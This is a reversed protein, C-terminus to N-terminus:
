RSWKAPDPDMLGVIGHLGLLETMEVSCDDVGPGASAATALYGCRPLEARSFLPDDWREGFGDVARPEAQKSLTATAGQPVGETTGYITGDPARVDLSELDVGLANTVTMTSGEPPSWELRARTTSAAIAVHGTRERVPLFDGSLILQNGDMEVTRMRAEDGIDPVFVTTGPLPRLTSGGKGLVLSRRLAATTQNEVQDVIALSHAFGETRFGQRVLGFVVILATTALSLVPVSLFLLGPRKKRRSYIVSGPGVLLAFLTLVALVPRIPLSDDPIPESWISSGMSLDARGVIGIMSPEDTAAPLISDLLKLAARLPREATPASSPDRLLSPEGATSDVRVLVGFGARYVTVDRGIERALALSLPELDLELRPTMIAEIGALSGLRRDLDEGFVVLQGGQRVWEFLRNWRHDAPLVQDVDLFVTDVSSWGATTLPMDELTMSVLSAAQVGRSGRRGPYGSGDHVGRIASGDDLPLDADHAVLLAPAVEAVGLLAIVRASGVGWEDALPLSIRTYENGNRLHVGFNTRGQVREIPLLRELSRTEGPELTVSFEQENRAMGSSWSTDIVFGLREARAGDNTIRFTVPAFGRGAREPLFTDAVVRFEGVTMTTGIQRTSASPAARVSSALLHALALVCITVFSFRSVGM